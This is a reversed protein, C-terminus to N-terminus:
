GNRETRSEEQLRRILDEVRRRIDDRSERFVAMIDEESGKAKAPDHLSWHEKRIGAPLTPCSQDADGCVTVLYTASALMEDTLRTSEQRSIDVGAERMVEIARPNKGHSEIGASLAQVWDGGLHHAWGEAMQSRCANGTCLFLVIM